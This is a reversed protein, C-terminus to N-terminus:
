FENKKGLNLGKEQVFAEQIMPLRQNIEPMTFVHTRPVKATDKSANSLLLCTSTRVGGDQLRSDETWM